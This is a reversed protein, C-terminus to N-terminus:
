VNGALLRKIETKPIHVNCSNSQVYVADIISLNLFLEFAKVGKMKGVKCNFEASNVALESNTYIVGSCGNEDNMLPINIPNDKGTSIIYTINESSVPTDKGDTEFLFFYVWEGMLLQLFEELKNTDNENVADEFLKELKM